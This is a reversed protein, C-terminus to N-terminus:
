PSGERSPPTSMTIPSMSSGSSLSFTQVSPPATGRALALTRPLSTLLAIALAIGALILGIALVSETATLSLDSLRVPDAVALGAVAAAAANFAAHGPTPPTDDHGFCGCTAVDQNGNLAWLIFVTFSAYALAVGAWLLPAGIAVASLALVVEAVGLVRTAVMPMPVKLARLATATPSPRHVKAVGALGLVGTVIYLLPSLSTVFASRLRGDDGFRPPGLPLRGGIGVRRATIPPPGAPTAAAVWAARRPASTWRMSRSTM